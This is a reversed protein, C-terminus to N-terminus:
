TITPQCSVGWPGIRALPCPGGNQRMLLYEALYGEVVQRAREGRGAVDVLLVRGRERGPLDFGLGISGQQIGRELIIDAEPRLLVDRLNPVQHGIITLLLTM